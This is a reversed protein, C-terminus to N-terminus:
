ARNFAYLVRESGDVRTKGTIRFRSALAQQFAEESYHPYVDRRTRLLKQVMPDSKPVFEIVGGRTVTALWDVIRPLPVNGSIALHHVLALCLAFDAPGRAILGPREAQAWGQDPSPNMFDMVLPLVNPVTGRLARFAAGVAAEDSDMAVVYGAHRAAIRTFHGANCGLDWVTSPRAEAVADEVVREKHRLAEAAYPLRKEYDEWTSLSGKRRELRSVTERLNAIIRRTTKETIPQSAAQALLRSENAARRGLWAQLVVNVFVTPRLKDRFSLLRSLDAADLGELSTRLHGQYSVGKLAQLLLPNLFMRCFQSYGPWAAGQQWTEYSAVDIFTPRTGVYQVNFSTGDKLMFGRDLGLELVDLHCLAAEKLMEFPWEYAYSVFPVKEHEVVLAADEPLRSFTPLSCPDVERTVVALREEALQDLLGSSLLQRFGPAASTRFYRFVRDGNLMVGGAPDRFSGPDARLGAAKSPEATATTM